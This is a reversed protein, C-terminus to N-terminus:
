TQLVRRGWSFVRSYYGSAVSSIIVKGAGSGAHLFYNNGLVIGVHDCMDGDSVTNFFIMDGRKLSAKSSIKPRADNYGEGKASHQLQIGIKGFAYMMLGSCDFTSPGAAGFVYRKGLQQQCVYIVYELKKANSMGSSYSSTTSALGAPITTTNGTSGSSGGSSTQQDAPSQGSPLQPANANYLARITKSDASGTESGGATKQFLRVANATTSGYDGDVSSERSLYGLALLRNQLRTVSEGKSGNSLNSRLLESEPANGSYLVRLTALNAIGSQSMGAGAQFREVASSTYSTYNSGPVTDLYGLALLAKELQLVGAGSDELKLEAYSISSLSKRLMFGFEGDRGVLVWTSDYGYYSLTEGMKLTSTASASNMSGYVSASSEIVTATGLPDYGDIVEGGDDEGSSQDTLARVSCYGYRGNLEIYAWVGETSILNVTVGKRLTGLLKSNTDASKYVKMKSATVTVQVAGELQDDEDEKGEGNELGSLMCFGFKGSKGICAWTDNQAYVTVGAGARLTGLKKSKTSASKYVPLSSVIVTAKYTEVQIGDQADGDEESDGADEGDGTSDITLDSALVYGLAGDNQVIAYPNGAYLVGLEYGEPVDLSRSTTSPKAYIKTAQNTVAHTATEELTTLESLKAYATRGSYKLRAVDGQTATVTVVTCAPLEATKGTLAAKQYVTLSEGAVVARYSEALAPVAPIAAAIVLILALIRKMMKKKYM